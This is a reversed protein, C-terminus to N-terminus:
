VSRPVCGWDCDGEITRRLRLFMTTGVALCFARPGPRRGDDSSCRMNVGALAKESRSISAQNSAILPFKACGLGLPSSLVILSHIFLYIFWAYTRTGPGFPASLHKAALPLHCVQGHTGRKDAPKRQIRSQLSRKEKTSCAFGM